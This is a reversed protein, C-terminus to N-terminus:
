FTYNYTLMWNFPMGWNEYNNIVDKTDLINNLTLVVSNHQDPAYSLNANLLSRHPVPHSDIKKTGGQGLSDYYSTERKGLYLYNLNGTFKGAQYDLGATMQFRAESQEYHDAEDEKTKPNAYMAGLRFSLNDNINKKYEVEAGTNKFKGVNMLIKQGDPNGVDVWSFKGDVDMHFVDFKWSSSDNIIKIGTEYTWGEQPKLQTTRGPKFYQNLAPMQYSKGVNIYWSSHDTLKYLTQIQPLLVNQDKAYDDVHQGRLGLTTSFKPSFQYKYSAYLAENTRDADRKDGRDTMNEKQLALGVILTDAGNRFDWAKQTDWSLTDMKWDSSTNRAMAGYAFNKIAAVYPDVERRNYSLITKFQHEQDNYLASVNDRADEYLYAKGAGTYAENKLKWDDRYYSGKVHSYQFSLKDTPAFNVFASSQTSNRMKWQRTSKAFVKNTGEVNGFYDRSFYANFRDGSTSLSWKQDYNGGGYSITTKAPGGKKTIINIVGGFAEAGYLASQAGRVVEVKEIAQAPIGSTNNYNLMNIPAGNVLVLTGKDFGRLVIRSNSGGYERGSPGYANNTLGVQREIIEYASKAGSREIEKATIVSTAAPTDLDRTERRQATVVMPDLTFASLDEDAPEAAFVSSSGVVALTGCILACMLAGKSAYGTIKEM